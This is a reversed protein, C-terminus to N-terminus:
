RPFHIAAQESRSRLAKGRTIHLSLVAACRNLLVLQRSTPSSRTLKAGHVNLSSSGLLARIIFLFHPNNSAQLQKGGCRGGM